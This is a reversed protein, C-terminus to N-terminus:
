RGPQVAEKPPQPKQKEALRAEQILAVTEAIATLEGDGRSHCRYFERLHLTTPLKHCQNLLWGLARECAFQVLNLDELEMAVIGRHVMKNRRRGLNKLTRSAGVPPFAIFMSLRAAVRETKGGDDEAVTIAEALQWLGLFCGYDQGSDMAQAYLRLCDAVIGLTSDRPPQGALPVAYEQFSNMMEQSIGVDSGLRRSPDYDLEFPVFQLPIGDSRALMWAPHLVESRPGGGVVRFKGRGFMFAALGRYADWAPEAGKWAESWHEGHGAFSVFTPMFLTRDHRNHYEHLKGLDAALQSRVSNGSDLTFATGLMTFSLPLQVPPQPALELPLWFRWERARIPRAGRDASWLRELADVSKEGSKSLADLVRWMETRSLRPSASEALEILPVDFDQGVPWGGPQKAALLWDILRQAEARRSDNWLRGESM